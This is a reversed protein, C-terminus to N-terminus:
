TASASESAPRAGLCKQATSPRSSKKSGPGSDTEVEDEGADTRFHVTDADALKVSSHGFPTPTDVQDDADRRLNAAADVKSYNVM